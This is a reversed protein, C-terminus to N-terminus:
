RPFCLFHLCPRSRGYSVSVVRCSKFSKVVHVAKVVRCLYGGKRGASRGVGSVLLATEYGARPGPEPFRPCLGKKGAKARDAVAASFMSSFCFNSDLVKIQVDPPFLKVLANVDNIQVDLLPNPLFGLQISSPAIYCCRSRYYSDGNSESVSREIRGQNCAKDNKLSEWSASRHSGDHQKERQLRIKLCQCRGM